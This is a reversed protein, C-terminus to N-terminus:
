FYHRVPSRLSVDMVIYGFENEITAPKPSCEREYVLVDYGVSRDKAHILAGHAILCDIMQGHGECAAVHLATRSDYDGM